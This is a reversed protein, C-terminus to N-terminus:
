AQGPPCDTSGRSGPFLVPLPTWRTQDHSQHKRLHISVQAAERCAGKDGLGGGGPRLKETAQKHPSRQGRGEM